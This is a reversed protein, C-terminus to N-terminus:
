RPSATPVREDTDYGDEHLGHPTKEWRHPNFLTQWAARWAAVSHLLWYVPSLVAFAATRWGHRRWTAIGSVIIMSLNGVLMNALGTLLLWQPLRLSIPHVDVYSIVTLSLVLPYLMFAVPTGLILMFLCVFGRVGTARYFRVLHRCNVAGTVMYGKIWRTRQKVFVGVQSCAEEWTTSTNVGVRYGMSAARMGLDADETVNYPDWGGLSRLMETDFHNSTGGLPIPIGTRDLGPLMADFWHSYEVTFMRTLLNYDSNFYNLACQVCVLPARQLGADLERRARQFDSIVRRLQDPDPRDEADYIVVYKGRAFALGYNCARPKTQPEGRPVIILRVFEPPRSAKAAAITEVDDEELLVMVDLKTRPYDLLEVHEIVQAIVNAEHFAPVLISYMPLDRDDIRADPLVSMGRRRHERVLDYQWRMEQAHRLPWRVSAFVKFSINAAFATNAAVLLVILTVAPYRVFGAVIAVIAIFPIVRQWHHLSTRASRDPQLEALSDAATFLLPLRFILSVATTLDRRTMTRVIVESVGFEARVQALLEGTPRVTTAIVLRGDDRHVPIWGRDLIHNYGLSQLLEPAPPNAVLDIMPADWQASLMAYLDFANVDGTAVLHLGLDGGLREQERLAHELQTQRILGADILMQGVPVRDAPQLQVQPALVPERLTM